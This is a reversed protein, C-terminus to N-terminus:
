TKDMRHQNTLLTNLCSCKFQYRTQVEERITQYLKYFLEIIEEQFIQYFKGNMGDPVLSKKIPLQKIGLEVEKCTISRNLNGSRLSDTKIM